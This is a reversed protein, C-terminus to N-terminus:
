ERRNRQATRDGLGRIHTHTVVALPGEVIVQADIDVDLTRNRRRWGGGEKPRAEILLETLRRRAEEIQLGTHEAFTRAAALTVYVCGQEGLTM